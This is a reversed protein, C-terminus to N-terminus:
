HVVIDLSRDLVTPRYVRATGFRSGWSTSPTGRSAEWAVIL